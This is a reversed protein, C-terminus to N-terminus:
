SRTGGDIRFVSGTVFSSVDSALYVVLAAVDEPRGVRGLPVQSPLTPRFEAPLGDLIATEIWGPTIANVRVGAGALELAATQTLQIVGAKAAGYPGFTPTAAVGAISSMNIISGRGAAAMARGAHKVGLFVGDLDVATVRRWNELSAEVIPALAGLIGANNVMVDLQGEQALVSAVAAEVAAENTVDCTLYRAAGGRETIMAVTAQGQETNVDAVIVRAGEAALAVAIARGIGTAGGTVLASRGALGTEM